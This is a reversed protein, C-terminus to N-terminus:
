KLADNQNTNTNSNLNEIISKEDKSVLQMYQEFYPAYENKPIM